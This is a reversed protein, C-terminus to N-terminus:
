LVLIGRHGLVGNVYTRELEERERRRTAEKPDTSLSRRYEFRSASTNPSSTGFEITDGEDLAHPVNKVLRIGNVFTGNTSGEDFVDHRGDARPVLIAHCKSVYRNNVHVDNSSPDSGVSSADAHDLTIKEGSERRGDVSAVPALDWVVIKTM